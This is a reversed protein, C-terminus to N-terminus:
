RGEKIEGWAVSLKDLSEVALFDDNMIEKVEKKSIARAFLFFEDLLGIYWRGNKHHGIGATVNWNTALKAGSAEADHTKKGDVYIAVEKTKADYVGAFHHWKKNM